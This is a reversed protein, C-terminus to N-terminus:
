NKPLKHPISELLESYERFSMGNERAIDMQRKSLNVPFSSVAGSSFGSLEREDYNEPQTEYNEPMIETKAENKPAFSKKFDLYADYVEKASGKRNRAFLEFSKESIDKLVEGNGYQYAFDLLESVTMKGFETNGLTEKEEDARTIQTDNESEASNQAAASLAKETEEDTKENDVFDMRANQHLREALEKAVDKYSVGTIDGNEKLEGIISRIESFAEMNKRERKLRESILKELETQTFTKEEEEAAEKVASVTNEEGSIKEPIMEKEM